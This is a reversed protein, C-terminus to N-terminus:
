QKLHNRLALMPADPVVLGKQADSARALRITLVHLYGQMVEAQLMLLHADLAELAKFADTGKYANIRALRRSLEDGEEIMSRMYGNPAIAPPKILSM